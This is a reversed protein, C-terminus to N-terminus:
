SVLGFHAAIMPTVDRLHGQAPEAPSADVGCTLLVGLSDCRHLSGHSGGNQHHSGGWDVFEYGPTASLLVDGARTCALASWLRGLADPYDGFGIEDDGASLDLVSLDGDLMWRAGRGDVPGDAPRFRLEGVVGAVVADGGDRWATLDVGEIGRLQRILHPLIQERRNPDLVYVM